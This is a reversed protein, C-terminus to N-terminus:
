ISKEIHEDNLLPGILSEPIGKIEQLPSSSDNTGNKNNMRLKFASLFQMGSSFFELGTFESCFLFFGNYAYM